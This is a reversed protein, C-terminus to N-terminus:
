KNRQNNTDLLYTLKVQQTEDRQLNLPLELRQGGGQVQTIEAAQESGLRIQLRDTVQYTNEDVARISDAEAIRFRLDDRTTPSVIRIVRQLQVQGDVTTESFFDVFKVDNYAYRFAPRRKNDLTYGLFQHDPPRGDDVLWPNRRLDFEPGKAFEVTRGMPRVRGSGQGTWVGGPDAFKGRWISGLRMQEADFAINIGGPYGVGIGRKAMGPYSRRLMQAEDTVIIELPERVVGSPMRAQRGSLLYQWLEEVQQKPEGELDKRISVGGPWFSPMVTNPSFKQPNLMYAHFWDPKLRDAMETLDVAPMTDAPKFKYTHCAVCNLGKNGALMVGRERMAKADPVDVDIVPEELKDTQQFLPILHDINAEGYQPMRTLMYPRITRANVLVDRMWKSKLKAGAGSLTPPIRGQDGLNLNSTHFLQNRQDSVGGLGDREHCNTCQLTALTLDIQQAGSLPQPYDELAARMEDSEDATLVFQPWDGANGSLCGRTADLTALSPATARTEEAETIGAHCNVCGYKTFLAKGATAKSLDVQFTPAANASKQQLLFNALDTAERNTLQMDPMHGSARVVLPDRIFRTLGEIDYKSELKGLPVSNAM